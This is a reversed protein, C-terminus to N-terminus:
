EMRVPMKVYTKLQSKVLHAERPLSSGRSFSIAAEDLIRAQIISQVYSGPLICDMPDCLTLCSQAVESKRDTAVAMYGLHGRGRGGHHKASTVALIPSNLFQMM